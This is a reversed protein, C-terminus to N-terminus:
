KQESGRGLNGGTSKSAIDAAMKMAAEVLMKRSSFPLAQPKKTMVKKRWGSEVEWLINELRSLINPYRGKELIITMLHGKIYEEVFATCNAAAFDVAMSQLATKEWVAQDLLRNSKAVQTEFEEIRLHANHLKEKYTELEIKVQDPEGEINSARVGVDIGAYIHSQHKTM